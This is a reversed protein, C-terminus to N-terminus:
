EVCDMYKCRICAETVVYTMIDREEGRTEDSVRVSEYPASATKGGFFSLVLRRSPASAPRVVAHASSGRVPGSAAARRARPKRCPCARGAAADDLTRRHAPPFKVPP